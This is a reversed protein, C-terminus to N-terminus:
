ASRAAALLEAGTFLSILPLGEAAYLAEAGESRNVVTLVGVVEAGHGRVAELALLTSRGTTMTDEVLLCRADQPLGGEIQQGTGHDKAQKRVTFGDIPSGELASRHAIAYAVPDAGLTMGGVHTPGLGSDVVAAHAVLGVLLQGAACMTTPRADIYYESRAGSALTFQGLRISREVLLAGLEDRATMRTAKRERTVDGPLTVVSGSGAM